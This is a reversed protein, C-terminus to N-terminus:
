IMQWSVIDVSPIVESLDESAVELARVHTRAFGPIQLAASLLQAFAEPIVDSM